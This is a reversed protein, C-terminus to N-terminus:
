EYNGRERIYTLVIDVMSYVPVVCLLVVGFIETPTLAHGTM